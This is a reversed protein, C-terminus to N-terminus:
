IICKPYKEFNKFNLKDIIRLAGYGGRACWIAKINPQDLAWQFDSARESDSGAFHNEKKELHEGFVVKLGWKKLLIKTKEIVELDQKLVGAPALIAITDGIKLYAPRIM